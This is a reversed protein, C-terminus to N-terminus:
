KVAASIRLIPSKPSFVAIKLGLFGNKRMEAATFDSFLLIYLFPEKRDYCLGKPVNISMKSFITRM